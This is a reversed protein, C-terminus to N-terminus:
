IKYSHRKTKCKRCYIAIFEFIFKSFFIKLYFNFVMRFTYEHLSSFKQGNGFEETVNSIFLDVPVENEFRDGMFTYNSDLSLFSSPSKIKVSIGLGQAISQATFNRDAGFDFGFESYGLGRRTCNGLNQNIHYGIGTSYDHISVIPDL